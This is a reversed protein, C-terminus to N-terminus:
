MSWSLLSAFDEWSPRRGPGVISVPLLALWPWLTVADGSRYTIIQRRGISPGIEKADTRYM